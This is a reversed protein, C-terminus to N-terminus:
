NQKWTHSCNLCLYIQTTAEDSSRSQVSSTFISKKNCKNCKKNTNPEYIKSKELAHLRKKENEKYIDWHKSKFPNSIVDLFDDISVCGKFLNEDYSPSEPDVLYELEEIKSYKILTPVSIDKLKIMNNTYIGLAAYLNERTKGEDKFYSLFHKIM